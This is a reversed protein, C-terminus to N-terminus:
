EIELLIKQITLADENTIGDNNFDANYIAQATLQYKDPNSCSQMILVADSMDMKGDGNVDGVINNHLDVDGASLTESSELIYWDNSLGTDEEIQRYLEYHETQSIEYDPVVKVESWLLEGQYEPIGGEYVHHIEELHCNLDNDNIYKELIEKNEIDYTTITTGWIRGFYGPSSIYNAPIFKCDDFCENDTLGKEKFTEYIKKADNLTIERVEQTESDVYSKIIIVISKVGNKPAGNQYYSKYEGDSNVESIIEKIESYEMDGHCHIAIYPDSRNNSVLLLESSDRMFLSDNMSGYREEILTWDELLSEINDADIFQCIANSNLASLSAACTMVSLLLSTLKKMKKM